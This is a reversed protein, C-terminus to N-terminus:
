RAKIGCAKIVSAYRARREKLFQTTANRNLIFPKVNLLAFRSKAAESQLAEIHALTGNGSNSATMGPKAKALAALDKFSKAQSGAPLVLPQASVM